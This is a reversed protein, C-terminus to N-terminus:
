IQPTVESNEKPQGVQESHRNTVEERGTMKLTRARKEKRSGNKDSDDEEIKRKQGAALEPLPESKVTAEAPSTVSFPWPCRENICM